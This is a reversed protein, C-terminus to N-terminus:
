EFAPAALVFRRQFSVCHFHLWEELFLYSLAASLRRKLTTRCRGCSCGPANLRLTSRRSLPM